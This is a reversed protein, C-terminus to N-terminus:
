AAYDSDQQKEGNEKIRNIINTLDVKINEGIGRAKFEKMNGNNELYFSTIDEPCEAVLKTLRKRIGGDTAYIRHLDYYLGALVLNAEHIPTVEFLERGNVSFYVMSKM